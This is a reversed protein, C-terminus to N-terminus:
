QGANVAIVAKAQSQGGGTQLVVPVEAVTGSSAAAGASTGSPLVANIQYLGPGVLGVFSIPATQTGITLTATGALPLAASLLQANPAAPTTAGLGTAYLVITEGANYGTSTVGALLSAPAAISGNSHEAAIWANGSTADTALTFFAPATASVTAAVASSALANNTVKIQASGAAIDAPVLFNIQAPSVYSIAANEGNVSVSVGNITTPLQNGNFDSAAWARTTESLAGTGATNKVSVWTNPALATGFSAGNLLSAPAFSPAAQISALLGHSLVPDNNPGGGIGATIYLTSADSRGGNGFHLSWLGALKIQASTQDQLTGVLAGTTANFANIHGDGFNGVLLDGAFDGFGAPALAMGWPANLAGTSVLTSQLTGTFDYIAVYGNGAGAVSVKKATDQKAYAVYLKGGILEINYPAFGAPIAPNAFTASTVPTMNADYAEVKGSNFNAAFLVPATATGGVVCGTYVAGSKSNDVLIKSHTADVTSNWGTILGDLSCFIFQSQKGTAILFATTVSNIAVGTVPGPTTAGNAAPVSVITASATGTGDYLTSTGTGENGIWFPSAANFVNGWPNVLNKDQHDAIGPLDSVLNHVLYANAAALTGAAATFMVGFRLLAHHSRYTKM